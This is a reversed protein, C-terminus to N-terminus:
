PVIWVAFGEARSLVKNTVRGMLFEYLKSFGRRGMVITGYDGDKAQRIIDGARSHSQLTHKTSIRAPAVGAKELNEQYARFIDQANSALVEEFTKIEEDRQSFEELFGLGYSRIVHYLTLEAETAAAFTGVYDVAKRSNESADVAILMKSSQIDGGVVRVPVNGVRQVIKNSVSGLFVDELKSLGRRGVVVADYGKKAEEIIDRAIGVKREQVIVNVSDEGVHAKLLLNRADGLFAQAEKKAERKWKAYKGKMQKKFFADKELDWFIEPATPMVYM